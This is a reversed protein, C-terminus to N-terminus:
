VPYGIFLKYGQTLYEQFGWSVQEFWMPSDVKIFEAECICLGVLPWVCHQTPPRGNKLFNTSSDQFAAKLM